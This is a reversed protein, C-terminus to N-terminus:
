WLVGGRLLSGKFMNTEEECNRLFLFDERLLSSPTKHTFVRKYWCGKFNKQNIWKCDSVDLTVTKEQSKWSYFNSTTRVRATKKVNPKTNHLKRKCPRTDNQLESIERNMMHKWQLRLLSFVMDTRQYFLRWLLLSSSSWAQFGMGPPPKLLTLSKKPQRHLCPAKHIISCLLFCPIDDRRAAVQAKVVCRCQEVDPVTRYVRHVSGNEECIGKVKCNPYM